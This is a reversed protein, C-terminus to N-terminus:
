RPNDALHPLPGMAPGTSFAQEGQAGSLSTELLPGTFCSSPRHSYVRRFASRQSLLGHAQKFTAHVPRSESLDQGQCSPLSLTSTGSFRRRMWGASSASLCILPPHPQNPSRATWSKGQPGFVQAQLGLTHISTLGLPM